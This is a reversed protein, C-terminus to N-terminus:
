LMIKMLSTAIVAPESPYKYIHFSRLKILLWFAFGLAAIRVSNAELFEFINADPATSPLALIQCRSELKM